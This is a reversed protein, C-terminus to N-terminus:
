LECVPLISEPAGIALAGLPVLAYALHLIALLPEAATRYGAWRVLRVGHALGALLLAGGTAPHDPWIVWLLLAALLVLLAVKDFTQMPPVPLRGGGKQVLWNRTFSPVIRGGIVAIM